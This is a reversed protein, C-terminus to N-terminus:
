YVTKLKNIQLNFRTATAALLIGLVLIAIGPIPVAVAGVATSVNAADFQLNGAPIPGSLTSLPNYAPTSTQLSTSGDGVITFTITAFIQSVPDVPDFTGFDITATGQVNDFGTANGIDIFIPDLVISDMNVVNPDFNIIIAGGTTDVPFETGVLNITITDNVNGNINLLDFSVTAAKVSVGATFLIICAALKVVNSIMKM